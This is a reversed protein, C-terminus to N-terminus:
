ASVRRRWWSRRKERPRRGPTIGLGAVVRAPSHCCLDDASQSDVLECLREYARGILPRRTRPSHADTAVLHVLGEHVMWESFEQSGPGMTGCLSGATIQMLCGADVLDGVLKPERFLGENREPHALVITIRRAALEAILTDLPIYMEHPLELLMHRRHDGLTLIDGSLLRDTLSAEIRVEGGALVSVPIDETVLLDNLERVLQRIQESRNLHFSGLQHPTAIIASTGDEAALRAMALSDAWDKAGDDVGPLIHCHIDVFPDPM